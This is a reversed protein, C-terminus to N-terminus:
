EGEKITEQYEKILETNAKAAHSVGAQFALRAADYESEYDYHVAGVWEKFAADIATSMHEEGQEVSELERMKAIIATMLRSKYADKHKQVWKDLEEWRRTAQINNM